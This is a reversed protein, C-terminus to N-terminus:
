RELTGPMKRLVATGEAADVVDYGAARIKERLADAAPYDRARRRTERERTMAEVAPPVEEPEGEPFAISELDGDAESLLGVGLVADWETALARAVDGGIGARVAKHVVALARPMNLDDSIAGRFEARLAAATNEGSTGQQAARRFAAQLRSRARTAAELGEWTFNMPSPYHLTLCFYRFDRPSYGNGGSRPRSGLDDLTYENGASKSMKKGDVLLHAAHLWLAAFTKGTATM